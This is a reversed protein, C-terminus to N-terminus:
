SRGALLADVADSLGGHVKALASPTTTAHARDASTHFRDFAGTASLVPVGYRRWAQGEGPWTPLDLRPLSSDDLAAGIRDAVDPATDAPLDLLHFRSSSLQGDDENCAALSAGLHVVAAPVVDTTALHADAGVYEYEHGTAALVQVHRGEAALREALELTMALGCGREAACHFWGTLPSVLVIPDEHPPGFTGIVNHATGDSTWTRVSIRGRDAVADQDAAGLLVIPPGSPPRVPRNMAVLRGAHGPTSLVGLPGHQEGVRDELDTPYLGALLELQTVSPSTARAEGTGSFALSIADVSEDDVTVELDEHWLLTRYEELEVRGGRDALESAFWDCVASVNPGATRKTGLEDYARVLEFLRHGDSM